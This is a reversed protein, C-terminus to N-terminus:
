RAHWTDVMQVLREVAGLYEPFIRRAESGDIERVGALRIVDAAVGEAARRGGELRDISRLLSAFPAASQVIVAALRNADGGTEVYGERLHLLHSRAQVECARRLDDAEVSLATFPDAGSVLAHDSMIAGFELPFVDLSREFEHEALLLPTALNQGHWGAVKATCAALDAHTLRDVIALTHVEPGHASYTVLSKLRSGFIERLDHDLTRAADANSM